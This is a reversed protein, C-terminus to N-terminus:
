QFPLTQPLVHPLSAHAATSIQPVTAWASPVPGGRPTAKLKRPPLPPGEPICVAGVQRRLVAADTWPPSLAEHGDPAGVPPPIETSAAAM